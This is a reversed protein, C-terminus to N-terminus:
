YLFARFVWIGKKAKSKNCFLNNYIETVLNELMTEMLKTETHKVSFPFFWFGLSQATPVDSNSKKLSSCM